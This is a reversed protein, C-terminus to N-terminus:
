DNEFLDQRYVAALDNLKNQMWIFVTWALYIYREVDIHM